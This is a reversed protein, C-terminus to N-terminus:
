KLAKGVLDLVYTLAKVADDNMPIVHDVLDPDANSDVIGITEIGLSKAERATGKEKKIDIIFILEPRDTLGQLGGFFRELRDIERDILLREKKTFANYEGKAKKDKMESLKTLSKKLQTFNTLTGGLWRENVFFVGSAKAVEAVKDKVQKKCGVLVIRKGDKKAKTLIALAEELAKQTQILDFVHVGNEEGYLYESMKPNWRRSQHGFHASAEILKEPSVVIKM